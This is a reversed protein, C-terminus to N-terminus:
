WEYVAYQKALEANNTRQIRDDGTLGSDDNLAMDANEKLTHIVKDVQHINRNVEMAYLAFMEKASELDFTFEKDHMMQMFTKTTDKLSEHIMELHKIEMDTLHFHFLSLEKM